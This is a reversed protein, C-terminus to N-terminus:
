SLTKAAEGFEKREINKIFEPINIQVPCGNICTPNVCDM